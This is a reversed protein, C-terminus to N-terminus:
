EVLELDLALGLDMLVDGGKEFVVIVNLFDKVISLAPFVHLPYQLLLM